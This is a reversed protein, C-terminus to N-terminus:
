AEQAANQTSDQTDSPRTAALKERRKGALEFLEEAVAEDILGDNRTRAIEEELTDLESAGVAKGIDRGISAAVDEDEDAPASAPGASPAPRGQQDAKPQERAPESPRAPPGFIEDVKAEGREVSSLLSRMTVIDQPSYNAVSVGNMRQRLQDGNLGLKRAREILEDREQKLRDAPAVDKEAAKRAAAMCRKKLWTPLSGCISNRIAKSQGKQFVMDDWRARDFKGPPDEKGIQYLRPTTTGTELDIFPVSLTWKKDTEEVLHVEYACNGWCRMLMLAADISEGIVMKKKKEGTVPDTDTVPWSYFYDEGMLQAEQAARKALAKAERPQQVSVATVYGTQVRRMTMQTAQSASALADDSLDTNNHRALQAPQNM